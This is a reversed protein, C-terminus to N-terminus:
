LPSIRGIARAFPRAPRGAFRALVALDNHEGLHQRMRSANPASRRSSPRGRRKWRQSIIASTSSRRACNTYKRADGSALAGAARAPTRDPLRRAASEAIAYRLGDGALDWGEISRALERLRQPRRPRRRFQSPRPPRGGARVRHRALSPGRDRKRHEGRPEGIRRAHRRPRPRPRDPAARGRARSVAEYAPAGVAPRSSSPSPARRRSRRAAITSASASTKARSAPVPRRSGPCRRDLWRRCHDPWPDRKDKM